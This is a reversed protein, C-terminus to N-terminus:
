WYMLGIESSEYINLEFGLLTIWQAHQGIHQATLRSIIKAIPDEPNQIAALHDECLSRWEQSANVLCRRIRTRNQCLARM